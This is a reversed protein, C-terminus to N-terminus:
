FSVGYGIYAAPAVEQGFPDYSLGLGAQWGLRWQKAPRIGVRIRREAAHDRLNNTIDQSVRVDMNLNSRSDFTRTDAWNGSTLTVTYAGSTYITGARDLAMFYWGDLAVGVELQQQTPELNTLPIEIPQSEGTITGSAVPVLVKEKVLKVVEVPVKTEVLKVVEKPKAELARQMGAQEILLQDRMNVVDTFKGKEHIYGCTSLALLIVLLTIFAAGKSRLRSSPPILM